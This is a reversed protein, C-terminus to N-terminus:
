AGLSRFCIAEFTEAESRLGPVGGNSADDGNHRAQEVGAVVTGVPGPTAGSNALGGGRGTSQQAWAQRSCNSRGM